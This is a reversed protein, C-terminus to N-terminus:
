PKIQVLFVANSAIGNQQYHALCKREYAMPVYLKKCSKIVMTM